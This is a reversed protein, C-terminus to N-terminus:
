LRWWDLSNTEHNWFLNISDCEGGALDLDFCGKKSKYGAPAEGFIEILAGTDSEITTFTAMRSCLADQRNPDDLGFTLSSVNNNTSTSVEVTVDDGTYGIRATDKIGDCDIDENIVSQNDWEIDQAVGAPSLTVMLLTILLKM